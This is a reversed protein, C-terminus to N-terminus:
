KQSKPPPGMALLAFAGLDLAEVFDDAVGPGDFFIAL